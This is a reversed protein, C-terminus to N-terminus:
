VGQPMIKEVDFLRDIEFENGKFIQWVAIAIKHAIINLSVMKGGSASRRACHIQYYAKIQPNLRVAASAAQFLANKMFANGQKSGRGRAVTNGSQAVGPVVRSWSCFNKFNKFRETNYVELFLTKSLTTGVGPIDRLMMIIKNEALEDDLKKEIKKISDSYCANFNVTDLLVHDLHEDHGLYDEVDDEEFKGISNRSPSGFGNRTLMMKMDRFDGARKRVILLRRRALDRFERYERPFIFGEPIYGVRLLEALAESDRRDTKVKAKIIHALKLAHAMTLYLYGADLLGDSLWYYTGCSEFVIEQKKGYKKIFEIVDLIKADVRGQAKINGRSDIVTIDAKKKGLDIGTYYTM